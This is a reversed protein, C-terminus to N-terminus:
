VKQLNRLSIGLARQDTFITASKRARTIATYFNQRSLNMFAAPAMVYAVHKYESGQCKHTTLAYALEIDRRYDAYYIMRRKVSYETIKPPIEVMRDGLDIELTGDPDIRVLRGVEGNLIQKTEPAPIFSHLMPSTDDEWESYRDNWDRLDYVNANCVVKDGEAVTITKGKEWKHRPLEVANPRDPNIMTQLAANLKVTGIDSRRAPSIIQNDLQSWVMPDARVVDYLKALMAPNSVIKVDSNSSFVSGRNIARAAELIGNGEEQRYVRDLTFSHQMQLCKNFPSTPDALKANEIPPLQRIDGFVRFSARGLASVLDRHLGTSVMAYEDVLVVRYELPNSNTRRPTSVSTAQGTDDDIDPRNFELLKHITIAPFGTAERIRRAAKGTPAALAFSIGADQLGQCVTKIITTKGTGAEGTVSVLRKDLDLCAEIAALQQADLTLQPAALTMSM